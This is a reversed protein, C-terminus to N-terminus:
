NKHQETDTRVFVLLFYEFYQATILCFLQGSEGWTEWIVGSSPVYDIFIGEIRKLKCKRSIWASFWTRSGQLFRRHGCDWCNWSFRIWGAHKPGCHGHIERCRGGVAQYNVSNANLKCLNQTFAAVLSKKRQQYGRQTSATFNSYFRILTITAPEQNCPNWGGVVPSNAWCSQQMIISYFFAGNRARSVAGM